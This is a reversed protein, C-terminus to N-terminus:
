SAPEAIINLPPADHPPPFGVDDGADRFASFTYKGLSGLFVVMTDLTEGGPTACNSNWEFFVTPRRSRIFEAAGKFVSLEHGEVDVKFVIKDAQRIAPLHPLHEDLKICPVSIQKIKDRDGGCERLLHDYLVSSSTSRDPVTNFNLTGETESAAIAFISVNELRNLAATAAALKALEPNAEFGIVQGRGALFRGINSCYLGGNAGVDVYCLRTADGLLRHLQKLTNGQLQPSRTWSLSASDRVNGIYLTNQWSRGRFFHRQESFINSLIPFLKIARTRIGKHYIFPVLFQAKTFLPQYAALERANDLLCSQFTTEDM